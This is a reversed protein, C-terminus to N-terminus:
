PVTIGKTFSLSNQEFGLRRYFKHSEKRVNASELRIRHCRKKKAHAICANVLRKGTGRNRHGSHVILEAIYLEPTLRNLRPLLVMSAMGVVEGDERAVIIRKDPDSTYRKVMGEFARADADKQPRPRGLAYSLELIAPADRYTASRIAAAM